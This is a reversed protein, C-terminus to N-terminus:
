RNAAKIRQCHLQIIERLGVKASSLFSLEDGAEKAM